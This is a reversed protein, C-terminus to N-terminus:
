VDVNIVGGPRTAAERIRRIILQELDRCESSRLWEATRPKPAPVTVDMLLTAPRTSLVLIRDAIRVAESVDHTVFLALCPSQAWVRLCLEQMEERTQPDLASFPEDMCLIPPRLVLRAALSVRQQMGGSLQRPKLQAAEHLGVAKLINDVRQDREEPSVKAGWLGAKFPLAVNGRVSLWAKLTPKQFVTLVKDHPGTVKKGQVRCEGKSPMPVYRDYMGSVMRLVTSKGCGSPGLVCITEPRDSSFTIDHLVETMGGDPEPFSQGVGIFELLPTKGAARAGALGKASPTAKTTAAGAIPKPAPGSSAVPAGPQHPTTM